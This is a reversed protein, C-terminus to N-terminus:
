HQSSVEDAVEDYNHLTQRMVSCTTVFDLKELGYLKEQIRDRRQKHDDVLSRLQAQHEQSNLWRQLAEIADVEAQYAYEGSVRRHASVQPSVWGNDGEHLFFMATGIHRRNEDRLSVLHAYGLACDESYTDVESALVQGETLVEEITTLATMQFKGFGFPKSLLGPWQALDPDNSTLHAQALAGRFRRHWDLAQRFLNAASYKSILSVAFQQAAATVDDPLEESTVARADRLKETDRSSQILGALWREIFNLYGSILHLKRSDNGALELMEDFSSQYGQVCLDRFVHGSADWSVPRIAEQFTTFIRWELQSQPVNDPPLVDIAFMLDLEDGIWRGSILSFPKGVLFRVTSTRVDGFLGAINEILPEGCDIWDIIDQSFPDEPNFVLLPVLAPLTELFQIRNRRAIPDQCNAWRVITAVDLAIASFDELRPDDIDLFGIDPFDSSIRSDSM